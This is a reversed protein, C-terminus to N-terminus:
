VAQAAPVPLPALEPTQAETSSSDVAVVPPAQAPELEVAKRGPLPALGAAAITIPRKASARKARLANRRKQNAVKDVLAKLEEQARRALKAAKKAGKKAEKLTKRAEKFSRKASRAKEKEANATKEAFLAKATASRLATESSLDARTPTATKM